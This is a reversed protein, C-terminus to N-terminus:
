ERSLYAAVVDDADAVSPPDGWAHRARDRSSIGLVTELEDKTDAMFRAEKNGECYPTKPRTPDLSLPFCAKEVELEGGDFSYTTTGHQPDISAHFFVNMTRPEPPCNKHGCWTTGRLKCVDFFCDPCRERMQACSLPPLPGHHESGRREPFARTNRLDDYTFDRFLEGHYKLCKAKDAFQLITHWLSYQDKFACRNAFWRAFFGRVAPTDRAYFKSSRTRWQAHGFDPDHQSNFVVDKRSANNHHDELALPVSAAWPWHVTTDLDEFYLAAVDPADLTALTAPMKIYHNSVDALHNSPSQGDYHSQFLRREACAPNNPHMHCRARGRALVCGEATHNVRCRVELSELCAPNTPSRAAAPLDGVWVFPRLGADTAFLLKNLFLLWLRFLYTPSNAVMLLAVEGTANRPGTPVYECLAPREAFLSNMRPANLPDVRLRQGDAYVWSITPPRRRGANARHLGAHDIEIRCGVDIPGFHEFLDHGVYGGRAQSNASAWSAVYARRAEADSAAATADPAAVAVAAVALACALSRMSDVPRVAPPPARPARTKADLV